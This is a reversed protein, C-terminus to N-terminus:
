EFKPFQPGLLEKHISPSPQMQDSGSCPLHIVFAAGKLGNSAGAPRVQISGGHRGVIEKAVWLGLGTGVDQKTTFFPDFIRDLLEPAVGPGDDEILVEAVRGTSTESGRCRIAIKGKNPVADIANALLNAIVQKLEGAVGWIPPCNDASFDLSIEKSKVKNSYLRLIPEIISPIEIESPTNSERYFGLTQRTIHAVRELEQEALTLHEVVEATAGPSSKAIFLLNVVAELPNNIEHAVTASLRAAAALKETKRLIEQSDRKATSDRFVLVVGIIRGADDCIPAASDEIPLLRGDRHQLVTHNALGVVIGLSMVKKVPNETRKASFENFIPFVEQVDKGCANALSIGTLSEAIPNLFTVVGQPDTAIVGDGISTLAVRFWEERARLEEAHLERMRRERLIFNALVVMGLIAILTASYIAAVAIQISRKYASNRVAELSAEEQQMQGIQQRIQNMLILGRDSFVIARAASPNGTRYLSITEALEDLKQHALNRLPGVHEQQRPNDATLRALDEINSSLATIADQYPKLYKAEGTFLYGRQGTEADTVLLETQALLYRVQQTHAVWGQNEVLVGIRRRTVVANGILLLVLLSFGTVVSFRQIFANM